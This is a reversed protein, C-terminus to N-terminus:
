GIACLLREGIGDRAFVLSSLLAGLSVGFLALREDTLHHREVLIGQVTQYDRRVAEFFHPVLKPRVRVRREILPAVESVIDGRFNRALSREGALPIDFLACAIKMDWLTSVVFDNWQLPAAMGQLALVVPTQAAPRGPPVFVLLPYGSLCHDVLVDGTFPFPHHIWYRVGERGGLAVPEPGHITAPEM